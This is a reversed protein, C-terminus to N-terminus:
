SQVLWRLVSISGCRGSDCDWYRGIKPPGKTRNSAGTPKRCIHDLRKAVGQELEARLAIFSRIGADSSAIRNKEPAITSLFPRPSRPLRDGSSRVIDM